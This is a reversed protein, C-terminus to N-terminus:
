LNVHSMNILHLVYASRVRLPLTLALPYFAKLIVIHVLHVEVQIDIIKLCLVESGELGM